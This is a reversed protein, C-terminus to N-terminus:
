KGLLRTSLLRGKEGLPGGPQYVWLHTLGRRGSPGEQPSLHPETQVPSPTHGLEAPGGSAPPRVKRLGQKREQLTFVHMQQLKM